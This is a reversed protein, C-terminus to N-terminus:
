PQSLHTLWLRQKAQVDHHSADGSSWLMWTVRGAVRWGHPRRVLDFRYANGHMVLTNPDDLPIHVNISHAQCVATDGDLEVLHGAILHQTILGDLLPPYNAIIDDRRRRYGSLYTDVDFGPAAAEELTPLSVTDDLVDVLRDYQKRDVHRHWWTCLDVVAQRDHLDSTM